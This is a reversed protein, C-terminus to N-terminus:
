ELAFPNNKSTKGASVPYDGIKELEKFESSKLIDLNVEEVVIEQGGSYGSEPSEEKEKRFILIIIAFVVTSALAILLVRQRKQQDIRM